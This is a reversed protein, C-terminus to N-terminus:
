GRTQAEPEEISRMTAAAHADRDKFPRRYVFEFLLKAAIQATRGTPDYRPSVETIDLAGIPLSALQALVDFLAGASLGGITVNGTGPAVSGDAVDIDISLYIADCRKRLDAVSAQLATDAGRQQIDRASVVHYGDCLLGDLQAKRTVSGVGIFAMREPAMGPLESIRRANSGHYLPGHIASENGFDFHHDVQIYGLRDVPMTAAMAGRWGAFSPFSISHDGGMLLVTAGTGAMAQVESAVARFTRFTDTQYVHLDGVDTIEPCQYRFVEGTRMDCMDHEGLSHIYSSFVLSAQRIAGPGEAAGPRSSATGDFPVGAALFSASSPLASLDGHTGGFLLAPGAWGPRPDAAFTTVDTLALLEAFNTM